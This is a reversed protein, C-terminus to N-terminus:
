GFVGIILNLAVALIVTNYVFSLLSQGLVARRIQRSTITVDSVQFCMGITLAFYAFDFYCPPADGPFSLGGEGEDDDRFYLHAYRLTYSTHTLMWASAVALVCLAVFLDRADPALTRAQRLAFSTAFLSVFSAALVIVWVATRGPDDAAARQRTAKPSSRLIISWKMTAMVIATVDWAAVSRLAPGLRTPIILGTLTGAALALVL